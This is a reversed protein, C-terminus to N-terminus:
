ARGVGFRKSVGDVPAAEPKVVVGMDDLPGHVEPGDLQPQLPSGVRGGLGAGCVHPQDPLVAPRVVRSPNRAIQVLHPPTNVPM